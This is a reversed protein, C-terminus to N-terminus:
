EACNIFRCLARMAFKDITSVPQKAPGIVQRGTRGFLGANRRRQLCQSVPTNSLQAQNRNRGSSGIHGTELDIRIRGATKLADVIARNQRLKRFFFENQLSILPSSNRSYGLSFSSLSVFHASCRFWKCQCAQPLHVTAVPEGYALKAALIQVPVPRNDDGIHNLLPLCARQPCQIKESRVVASCGYRKRSVFSRM